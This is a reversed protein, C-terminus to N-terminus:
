IKEETYENIGHIDPEVTMSYNTHYIVFGPNAKPPKKLNRRTTYDIEVKSGDRGSSYYAALRAAEEYTADPLEKGECKVIVHSGTTQKAHFWMDDSAAIKFTLEDNQLNNKGVYMHYGDSSIYHLPKSKAPNKTKNKNHTKRIYGSEMLERRIDALDGEEEAIDLSNQVSLLYTLEDKTEKCLVSLAEYTRKLKNYKEFYKKGNELATKEPNLPISIKEGTYYNDCELSEAGPKASYGYTTILEGYLKYKDRKETDALQATQLDFKKSTREIANSVLKRLDTSRQKIRSSISKGSYYEWITKSISDFPKLGTKDKSPMIDADYMSGYATLRVSSFEKPTYGNYAICPTFYGDSVNDMLSKFSDYLQEKDSINLEDTNKKDINARYIIENAMTPSIGTYSTYIAKDIPMNKDLIHNIFYNVELNLPNIKEKSPPYEYIRGPLVERVSSVAHSIHKISDIIMDKSDTFIINSHKGMIEVVLKKICVDGMDDLHEIDFEIIREFDPQRIDKIRGNGVHKRLLMCFNPAVEPNEKNKDSLYIMPLGADASIVLRETLNKDELRNKVILCIEDVEPQYIKYIRGGILNDRLEKVLGAITIGDMAM